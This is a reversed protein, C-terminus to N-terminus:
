VTRASRQASSKPLIRLLAKRVLVTVDGIELGPNRSEHLSFVVQVGRGYFVDAAHRALIFYSGRNNWIM